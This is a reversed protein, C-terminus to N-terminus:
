NETTMEVGELDSLTCDSAIDQEEGPLCGLAFSLICFILLAQKKM